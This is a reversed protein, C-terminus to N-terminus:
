MHVSMHPVGSMTPKPKSRRSFRFSAILFTVKKIENDRPRRRRSKNINNLANNNNFTM